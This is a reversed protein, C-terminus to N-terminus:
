QYSTPRAKFYRHCSNCYYRKKKYLALSNLFLMWVSIFVNSHGLAVITDKSGCYPCTVGEDVVPEETPFESAIIALVEEAAKVDEERVQLKISGFQQTYNPNITVINVTNEDMLACDIGAAELKAKMINALVPDGYTGVTALKVKDENKM